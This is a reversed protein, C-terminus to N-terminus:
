PLSPCHNQHYQRHVDVITLGLYPSRGMLKLLARATFLKKDSLSDIGTSCGGFSHEYIVYKNYFEPDDLTTDGVDCAKAILLSGMHQAERGAALERAVITDVNPAVVETIVQQCLEPTVIADIM